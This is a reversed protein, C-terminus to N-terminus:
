VDNQNYTEYFLFNCFIFILQVLTRHFDLSVLGQKLFKVM